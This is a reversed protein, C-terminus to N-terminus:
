CIFFNLNEEGITQLDLILQVYRRLMQKEEVESHIQLLEPLFYCSSTLRSGHLFRGNKAKKTMNIQFELRASM